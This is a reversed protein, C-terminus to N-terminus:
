FIFINLLNGVQPYLVAKQYYSDPQYWTNEIVRSPALKRGTLGREFFKFGEEDILLYPMIGYYISRAHHKPIVAEIDDKAVVVAMGKKFKEIEKASWGASGTKLSTILEGGCREDAVIAQFLEHPLKSMFREAEDKDKRIQEFIEKPIDKSSTVHRVNFKKHSPKKDRVLLTKAEKILKRIRNRDTVGEPDDRLDQLVRAVEADQKAIKHLVLVQRLVALVDKDEKLCNPDNPQSIFKELLAAVEVDGTVCVVGVAETLLVQANSDTFLSEPNFNIKSILQDIQEDCKKTIIKKIADNVINTVQDNRNVNDVNGISFLIDAVLDEDNGIYLELLDEKSGSSCSNIFKIAEIETENEDYLDGINLLKGLKKLEKEKRLSSVSTGAKILAKLIEVKDTGFDEIEISNDNEEDDELADITIKGKKKKKKKDVKPEPTRGHIVMTDAALKKLTSADILGQEKRLPSRPRAYAVTHTLLQIEEPSVDFGQFSIESDEESEETTSTTTSVNPLYKLGEETEVVTGSIFKPGENTELVQGPVFMPGEKTDVLQGPVFKQGKETSMMQGPIFTAGNKTQIIQGPVFKPGDEELVVQGPIFKEGESTKVIQGPVFKIGDASEVIQGPVFEEGVNTKVTQGPVFKEGDMTNMMKGPVFKQSTEGVVLQGSIVKAGVCEDNPLKGNLYFLVSTDKEVIDGYLKEGAQINSTNSPKVVFGTIDQTTVALLQLDENPILVNEDDSEVLDEKILPIELKTKSAEFLLKGDDKKVIEGRVFKKNGEPTEFSKGPIFSPGERTEIIQGPTFSIGESSQFAQGPIFKEGNSTPMKIGPVFEQYGESDTTVEGPVFKPGNKTIITQGSMFVPKKDGRDVMQGAMFKPGDDKDIIHGAVFTNGEKTAVNQGPIFSIEGNMKLITQGPIFHKGEPTDITQGAVFSEHKALQIIMGPIFKPKNQITIMAGSLAPGNQKKYEAKKVFKSAGKEKILYGESINQAESVISGIDNINPLMDTAEMDKIADTVKETTKLKEDDISKIAKLLDQEVLPTPEVTEVSAVIDLPESEPINPIDNTKINVVTIEVPECIEEHPFSEWDFGESEAKDIETWDFNSAFVTTVNISSKQCQVLDELMKEYCLQEDPNIKSVPDFKPLIISANEKQEQLLKTMKELKERRKAPDFKVPPRKPKPRETAKRLDDEAKQEKLEFVKKMAMTDQKRKNRENIIRQQDELVDKNQGEGYYYDDENVESKSISEMQVKVTRGQKIRLSVHKIDKSVSFTEIEGTRIAEELEPPVVLGAPQDNVKYVYLRKTDVSKKKKSKMRSLVQALYDFTKENEKYKIFLPRSFSLNEHKTIKCGELGDFRYPKGFAIIPSYNHSDTAKGTIRCLKKADAPSLPPLLPFYCPKPLNRAHGTIRCFTTMTAM